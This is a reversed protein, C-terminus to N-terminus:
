ICEKKEKYKIIEYGRVTIIIGIYLLLLSIVFCIAFKINFDIPDSDLISLIMKGFPTMLAFGVIKLIESRYEDSTIM